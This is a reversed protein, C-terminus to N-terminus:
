ALGFVNVNFVKMFSEISLEEITKRVGTGANNVLVDVKGDLLDM